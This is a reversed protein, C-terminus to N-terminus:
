PKESDHTIDYLWGGLSWTKNGTIKRGVALVARNFINGDNVPNLADGVVGAAESAQNKAYWVGVAGVVGVAAVVGVKSNLLKKNM